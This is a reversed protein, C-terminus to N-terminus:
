NSRITEVVAWTAGGFVCISMVIDLVVKAPNFTEKGFYSWLPSDADLIGLLYFVRTFYMDLTFLLIAILFMFLIVVKTSGILEERSTWNVKKMESDTAILFDVNSPKNLLYWCLWVSGVVFGVCIAVTIQSVKKDGATVQAITADSPVFYDRILPPLNDWVFNVTLLIIIGAAACSCIRTWYGQGKKYITFFGQSAGKEERKPPRRDPEDAGSAVLDTAMKKEDNNTASAM